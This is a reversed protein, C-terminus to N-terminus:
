LYYSLPLVQADGTGLKSFEILVTTVSSTSNTGSSGDVNLGSEATAPNLEGAEAESLSRKDAAM